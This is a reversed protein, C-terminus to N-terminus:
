QAARPTIGFRKIFATTGAEGPVFNPTSGVVLFRISDKTSDIPPPIMSSPILKLISDPIEFHMGMGVVLNAKEELTMSDVKKEIPTKDSVQSGQKCTYFSLLLLGAILISLPINKKM